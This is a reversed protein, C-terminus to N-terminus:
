AVEAGYGARRIEEVIRDADVKAPDFTVDTEGTRHDSSVSEVGDLEGVTMQILMSCSPCHMGTTKIKVTSIAMHESERERAAVRVGAAL